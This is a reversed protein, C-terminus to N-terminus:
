VKSYFAKLGVASDRPARLKESVKEQVEGRKRQAEATFNVKKRHLWYM